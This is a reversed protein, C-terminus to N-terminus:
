KKYLFKKVKVYCDEDGVFYLIDGINLVIYPGPSLLLKEAKKIAVITASTNHWFNIESITKDPYLFEDELTLVFPIFPNIFKYRETQEMMEQVLKSLIQSEKEQKQLISLIESKLNNITKIDRHQKVFKVANEYSIIEVGSGKTTEVIKMDTLICIARRATEASVGYLTALSSRAYIKDGVKYHKDAIKSALDAAIQQYKPITIKGQKEM